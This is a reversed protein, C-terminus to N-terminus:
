NLPIICAWLLSEEKKLTFEQSEFPQKYLSYSTTGDMGYKSILTLEKNSGFPNELSLLLRVATHNVLDQLPVEAAKEMITGNELHCMKKKARVKSHAQYVDAFKAM